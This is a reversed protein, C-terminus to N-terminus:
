LDALTYSNSICTETVTLLVTSANRWKLESKVFCLSLLIMIVTVIITVRRPTHLDTHVPLGFLSFGYYPNQLIGFGM